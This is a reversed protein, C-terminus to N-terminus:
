PAFAFNLTVIYYMIAILILLAGVWFLWSHHITKWSYKYDQKVKIEHDVEKLQPNQKTEEM